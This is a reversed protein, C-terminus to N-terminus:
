SNWNKKKRSKKEAKKVPKQEPAEVFDEDLGIDKLLEDLDFLEDEVCVVEM